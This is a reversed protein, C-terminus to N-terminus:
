MVNKHIEVLNEIYKTINTDYLIFCTDLYQTWNAFYPTVFSDESLPRSEHKTKDSGLM